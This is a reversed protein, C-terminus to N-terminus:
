SGPRTATTRRSPEPPPGTPPWPRSRATGPEFDMPSTMYRTQGEAENESYLAVLEAPDEFPLPELLIAEVVTYIATNAGIGLALTLVAVGTFLPNKALMRIAYRVDQMGDEMVRTGRAERTREKFREMGGFRILAARRAEGPPMGARELRRTEMEVHFRVEDDLDREVGAPDVFARVKLWAARLLDGLIEM